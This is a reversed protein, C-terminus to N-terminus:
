VNTWQTESSNKTQVDFVNTKTENEQADRRGRVYDEYGDKIMSIVVIGILFPLNTPVGDTISISPIM